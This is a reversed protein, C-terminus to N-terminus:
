RKKKQKAAWKKKMALMEKNPKIEHSTTQNRKDYLWNGMNDRLVPLRKALAPPKAAKTPKDAYWYAM